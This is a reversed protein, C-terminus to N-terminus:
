KEDEPLLEIYDWMEEDLYNLLELYEEKSCFHPDILIKNM